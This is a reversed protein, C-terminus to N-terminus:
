EEMLDEIDKRLIDYFMRAYYDEKGKVKKHHKSCLCIGNSVIYRLAPYQAWTKIHHVQISKKTKCGPWRCTAKDRTRVAKRWKKYRHDQLYNRSNAFQKKKHTQFINNYIYRKSKM